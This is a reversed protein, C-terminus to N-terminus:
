RANSNSRSEAERVGDAIRDGARAAGDAADEIAEGLASNQSTSEPAGNYATSNRETTLMSNNETGPMTTSPTQTTAPMTTTMDNDKKAGCGSFLIAVAATLAILIIATKKMKGTGKATRKIHLPVPM